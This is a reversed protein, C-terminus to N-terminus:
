IIDMLNVKNKVKQKENSIWKKNMSSLAVQEVESWDSHQKMKSIVLTSQIQSPTIDPTEHV